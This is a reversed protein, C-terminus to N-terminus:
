KRFFKFIGNKGLISDMNSYCYLLRYCGKYQLYFHLAYKLPLQRYPFSKAVETWINNKLIMKLWRKKENVPLSSKLYQRIGGRSTGIFYRTARLYGEHGFQKANLWDILYKYYYQEREINDARVTSSLSFQNVRYNYLTDPIVVISNAHLLYDLNFLLDESVLERESKFKLEYRKITDNSYLACCSSVTLDQDNMANPPNAIMDLMFYRIDEETNYRKESRNSKGWTDGQNNFRQYTFYVVDTKTETALDYLKQYAYLEVYDDSDVFAVYKGTAIEIGSNRAYGLGENKKHIVKVRHDQKAYEDCMAPCNDPSGDDVLIIEINTLTQNLLSDMCCQLYKEVNYVPVIISVKPSNM